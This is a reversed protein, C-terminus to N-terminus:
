PQERTAGAPARDVARRREEALPRQAAAVELSADAADAADAVRPAVDLPRLIDAILQLEEPPLVDLVEERLAADYRRQLRRAERLGAPTLSAYVVRRDQDSGRRDILGASGLRDALRTFGGTTMAAERALRSMPLRRNPAQLLASLVGFSPEHFAGDAVRALIRQHVDAVVRRVLEWDPVAGGDEDEDPVVAV